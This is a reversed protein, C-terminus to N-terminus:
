VGGGKKKPKNVKRRKNQVYTPIIKLNVLLKEYVVKYREGIAINTNKM